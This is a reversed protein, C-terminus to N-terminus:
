KRCSIWAACKTYPVAAKTTHGVAVGAHEESGRSCQDLNGKSKELTKYATPVWGAEVDLQITRMRVVYSLYLCRKPGPWSQRAADDISRIWTFRSLILIQRVLFAPRNHLRATDKLYDKESDNEIDNQTDEEKTLKIAVFVFICYFPYFTGVVKRHM